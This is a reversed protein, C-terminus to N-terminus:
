NAREQQKECDSPHTTHSDHRRTDGTSCKSRAPLRPPSGRSTQLLGSHPLFLCRHNVRVSVNDAHLMQHVPSRVYVCVCLRSRVACSQSFLSLSSLSPPVNQPSTTIFGGVHFCRLLAPATIILLDPSIFVCIDEKSTFVKPPQMSGCTNFVSIGGNSVHQLLSNNITSNLHM